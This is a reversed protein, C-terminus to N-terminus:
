EGIREERPPAVRREGLAGRRVRLHHVEDGRVVTLRVTSGVEGRLKARIDKATMGKVYWGDIM